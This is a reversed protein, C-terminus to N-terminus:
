KVSNTPEAPNTPPQKPPNVQPAAPAVPKPPAPQVSAAPPKPASTQATPPMVAPKKAPENKAAPKSATESNIPKGLHGLQGLPSDKSELPILGKGSVDGLNSLYFLGSIIKEAADAHYFQGIAKSMNTRLEPDSMLNAIQNLIIKRKFNPEELVVAGGQSAVAHANHLQHNNASNNLPVLIVPKGVAAIEAITGSGARSIILDAIAYAHIIEDGIFEYAYYGAHGIKVGLEGAVTRVEDLKGMGTQHIIQYTKLLEPLILAIQENILSSGQSGGLILLVPKQDKLKFIEKAKERSGERINNRVPQGTLLVKKEQFYQRAASFSIAVKDALRGLFLNARGPVADSEHILIPIFYLRAAIAPGVSGYGGKSFVVDPMFAWVHFLSQIIGIPLKFLDIFNHISFYRRWKASAVSRTKIGNETLIKKSLENTPGLYLFEVDSQTRFRINQAITLLPYLHGGTGGGILLVRM